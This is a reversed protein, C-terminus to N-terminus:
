ASAEAKIARTAEAIMQEIEARRAQEEAERNRLGVFEAVGYGDKCRHYSRPYVSSCRFQVPGTAWALALMLEAAEFESLNTHPNEELTGCRQCRYVLM